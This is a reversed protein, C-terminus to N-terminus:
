GAAISNGNSKPALRTEAGALPLPLRTRDLTGHTISVTTGGRNRMVEVRADLQKALAAVIITGLGPRPKGSDLQGEPMGIGNDSVTLQWSTEAAEYAVVVLGSAEDGVFAHKFANIVLEAVILGISVAEASSATGDEAQVNLSILRSNDTMLAALAQSLGSLYPGIYVPDGHGSGLLQQQIAGVSMLRLHADRLHMRTEDSQATRAKRLLIGAIIQLSNAIRHEVDREVEYGEMVTHQAAINELLFRLAPINWQGDGLAYVPRDEVNQRTMRFTQCFARNASVVRLHQDLVLLPDRITDVIEQALTHADDIDILPQRNASALSDAPLRREPYNLTEM